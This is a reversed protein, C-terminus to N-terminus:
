QSYGRRVLDVFDQAIHNRERMRRLPDLVHHEEASAAAKQRALEDEARERSAAAKQAAGASETRGNGGRIRPWRM